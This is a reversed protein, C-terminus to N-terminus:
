LSSSNLLFTYMSLSAELAIFLYRVLIPYKDQILILHRTEIVLYLKMFEFLTPRMFEFSLCARAVGIVCKNTSICSINWLQNSFIFFTVKSILVSVFYTYPLILFSLHLYFVHLYYVYVILLVFSYPTQFNCQLCSAYCKYIHYIGLVLFGKHVHLSFFNDILFM